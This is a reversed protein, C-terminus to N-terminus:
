KGLPESAGGLEKEVPYFGPLADVGLEAESMGLELQIVAIGGHGGFAEGLDDLRRTLVVRHEGGVRPEAHRPRHLSLSAEAPGDLRVLPQAVLGGRVGLAEGVERQSRGEFVYGILM